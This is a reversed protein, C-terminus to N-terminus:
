SEPSELGFGGKWHCKQFHIMSYRGHLQRLKDAAVPCVQWLWFTAQSSWWRITTSCFMSWMCSDLCRGECGISTSFVHKCCDSALSNSVPADLQIKGHKLWFVHVVPLCLSSQSLWDCTVQEPSPSIVVVHSVSTSCSLQSTTIASSILHLQAPHVTGLSIQSYQSLRCGASILQCRFRDWHQFTLKVHVWPVM